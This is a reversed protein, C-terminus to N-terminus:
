RQRLPPDSCRLATRRRPTIVGCAIRTGSGGSPQTTFDDPEAHVVVTKGLIECVTFRDTLCVLLARGSSGFLPPLDGAHYPHQARAPNYHGLADAFPDDRPGSCRAGSHIHFAFIPSGTQSPMATPLGALEAAVLVGAETQYFSVRGRIEPYDQSGGIIATAQPQRNLLALLKQPHPYFL